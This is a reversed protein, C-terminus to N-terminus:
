KVSIVAPTKPEPETEPKGPATATPEGSTESEITQVEASALQIPSESFKAKVQDSANAAVSHLADLGFSTLAFRAVSDELLDRSAPAHTAIGSYVESGIVGAGIGGVVNSGAHTLFTKVDLKVGATFHMHGIGSKEIGDMVGHSIGYQSTFCISALMTNLGRQQWFDSQQPDTPAFLTGYIAGNVSSHSLPALFRQAHEAGMVARLVPVDDALKRTAAFWDSSGVRRTLLDTAIFAPISGLGAGITQAYWRSSGLTADEAPAVIQVNPIINEGTTHDVLQGIGNAPDEVATHVCARGAEKLWQVMTLSQKASDEDDDPRESHKGKASRTQHESFEPHVKPFFDDDTSPVAIHAAAPAEAHFAGSDFPEAMIKCSHSGAGSYGIQRVLSSLQATCVITRYRNCTVTSFVCAM